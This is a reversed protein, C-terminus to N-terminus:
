KEGKMSEAIEICWDTVQMAVYQETPTANGYRVVLKNKMQEAFEVIAKRRIEKEYESTDVEKFYPCDNRDGGCSVSITGEACFASCNCCHIEFEENTM